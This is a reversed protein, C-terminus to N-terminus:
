DPMVEMVDMVLYAPPLEPHIIQNCRILTVTILAHCGGCMLHGPHKSASIGSYITGVPTDMLQYGCSCLVTRVLKLKVDYM